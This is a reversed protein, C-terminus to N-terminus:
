IYKKFNASLCIEPYPTGRFVRSLMFGWLRCIVKGDKKFVKLFDNQVSIRPSREREREREREGRTTNNYQPKSSPRSSKV